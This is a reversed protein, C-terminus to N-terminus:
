AGPSDTVHLLLACLVRVIIPYVKCISDPAYSPHDCPCRFSFFFVAADSVNITDYDKHNTDEPLTPPDFFDFFTDTKLTKPPGTFSTRLRMFQLNTRRVVRRMLMAWFMGCEPGSKHQVIRETLNMGTKWRIECGHCKYIEPGDFAFPLEADLECRMLYEKTLVADDFYDNPTFCFELVFSMVPLPRIRVRIDALHKLASEDTPRVMMQFM